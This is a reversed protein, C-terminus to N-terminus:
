RGGPSTNSAPTQTSAAVVGCLALLALLVGALEAGEKITVIVQFAWGGDQLGLARAIHHPDLVHVTYSVILLAASAKVAAFYASHRTLKWVCYVLAVLIPAYLLKGFRPTGIAAHLGSAEDLFFLALIVGTAIWTTRQAPLRGAGFLCVVAGAALAAADLIHSWSSASNANFITYELHYVGFDVLHTAAVAGLAGAALLAFTWRSALAETWAPLAQRAPTRQTPSAVPEVSRASAASRAPNASRTPDASHAALPAQLEGGTATL